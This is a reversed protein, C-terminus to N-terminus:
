CCCCCCCLSQHYHRDSPPSPLHLYCHCPSLEFANLLQIRACFFIFNQYSVSISIFILLPSSPGVACRIHKHEHKHTQENKKIMIIIMNIHLEVERCCFFLLFCYSFCADNQTGLLEVREWMVHAGYFLLILPHFYFLFVLFVPIQSLALSVSLLFSPFSFCRIFHIIYFLSYKFDTYGYIFIHLSVCNLHKKTTKGNGLWKQVRTREREKERDCM